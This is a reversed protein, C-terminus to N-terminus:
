YSYPTINRETDRIVQLLFDVISVRHELSQIGIVTGHGIEAHLYVVQVVVIECWRRGYEPMVVLGTASVLVQVWVAFLPKNHSISCYKYRFYKCIEM